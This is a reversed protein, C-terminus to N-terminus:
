LRQLRNGIRDLLMRIGHAMSLVSRRHGVTGTRAEGESVVALLGDHNRSLGDAEAWKDVMLAGPEDFGSRDLGSDM